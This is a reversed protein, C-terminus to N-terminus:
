GLAERTTSPRMVLWKGAWWVSAAAAVLAGLLGLYIVFVAAARAIEGANLLGFAYTAVTQSDNSQLLLPVDLTGAMWLAILLWAGILSPACLRAVIGVAAAVRGAGCIFAADELDPAVQAIMGEAARVAIPTGGVGLALVMLWPTGFLARLGPTAIYTALLAVSLVIGPATAPVWSGVRSLIALLGRPTRAMAYAMFFGCLVTLPAAVLSTALTTGLAQVGVPDDLVARVNALTWVGYLGFFPQFAGIVFQSAPLVLAVLCYILIWADVALTWGPRREGRRPAPAAKGGMTVHSKGRLVATQVALLAAVLAIALLSAAHAAAWDPTSTGVIYDNVRLSLTEIGVPLGLVAPLDYVQIGFIILLMLVAFFAPALLPVTIGLFAGMRSAGAIVAADEQSRDAAAVPGILFLYAFGSVKLIGVGILGAWSLANFLRAISGLGIATLLRPIVGANPNALMAWSIAYFLAPTAAILVMTPTIMCALRAPLRTRIVAFGTALTVSGFAVSLSLVLSTAITRALRPDGFVTRFGDLTWVHVAAFPSGMFAGRLLMVIPWILLYCIAAAALTRGLRSVGFASETAPRLFRM